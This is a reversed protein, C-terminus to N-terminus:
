LFYFVIEVDRINGTGFYRLQCLCCSLRLYSAIEMVAKQYGVLQLPVIGCKSDTVCEFCDDKWFGEHEQATTFLCEFAKDSGKGGGIKKTHIWYSVFALQVHSM